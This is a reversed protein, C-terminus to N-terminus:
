KIESNITSFRGLLINMKLDLIEYCSIAFTRKYHYPELLTMLDTNCGISNLIKEMDLIGINDLSSKTNIKIIDEFAKEMKSYWEDDVYNPNYINDIPIIPIGLRKVLSRQFNLAELYNMPLDLSDESSDGPLGSPLGYPCKKSHIVREFVDPTLVSSNPCFSLDIYDEEKKPNILRLDQNFSKGAEIYSKKVFSKIGNIGNSGNLELPNSVIDMIDKPTTSKKLSGILKNQYNDIKGGHNIFDLLMEKCIMSIMKSGRKVQLALINIFHYKVPIGLNLCVKFMNIDYYKICLDIIKIDPTYKIISKFVKLSHDRCVEVLNFDKRETLDPRDLICCLKSLLKPDINRILAEGTLNLIHNVKIQNLYKKVSIGSGPIYESEPDSGSLLLILILTSKISALSDNANILYLYVLIHIQRGNLDIYMNLDLDSKKYRICLGAILLHEENQFSTLVIKLLNAPPILNDKLLYFLKIIVGSDIKGSLLVKFENTTLEGQRNLLITELKESLVSM